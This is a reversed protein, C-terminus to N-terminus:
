WGEETVLKAMVLTTFRAQGKTIEATGLSVGHSSVDSVWAM